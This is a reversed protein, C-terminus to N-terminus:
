KVLYKADKWAKSFLEEKPTRLFTWKNATKTVIAAEVTVPAALWQKGKGVRQKGTVITGTILVDAERQLQRSAARVTRRMEEMSVFPKWEGLVVTSEAESQAEDSEADDEAEDTETAETPEPEQPAAPAEGPIWVQLELKFAETFDAINKFLKGDASNVLVYEMENDFPWEILAAAEKNVLIRVKAGARETIVVAKSNGKVMYKTANSM